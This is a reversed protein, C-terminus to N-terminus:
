LLKLIQKVDLESQLSLENTYADLSSNWFFPDFLWYENQILFDSLWSNIRQVNKFPFSWFNSNWARFLITTSLWLFSTIHALWTDVAIVKPNIKLLIDPINWLEEQFININLWLQKLRLYLNYYKFDAINWNPNDFVIHFVVTKNQINIESCITIWDDESLEKEHLSSRPVILYDNYTTGLSIPEISTSERGKYWFLIEILIKFREPFSYYNAHINPIVRWDISLYNQQHVLWDVSLTRHLNICYSSPEIKTSLIEDRDHFYIKWTSWRALEVLVKILDKNITFIHLEKNTDILSLIVPISLVSDWIQNNLILLIKKADWFNRIHQVQVYLEDSYIHSGSSISERHKRYLEHLILKKDAYYKVWEEHIFIDQLMEFFNTINKKTWTHPYTDLKSILM